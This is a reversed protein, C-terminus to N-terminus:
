GRGALAYAVLERSGTDIDQEVVDDAGAALAKARFREQANGAFAIAPTDKGASRMQSLFTIGDMDPLSFHLLVLDFEYHLLLELGELGTGTLEVNIGADAIATLTSTTAKGAFLIRM